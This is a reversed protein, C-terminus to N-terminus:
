EPPLPVSNEVSGSRPKLLRKVGRPASWVVDMGAHLTTRFTPQVVRLAVLPRAETAFQLKYRQTGALYDYETVGREALYATLLLHAATGPSRVPSAKDLRSGSVYYDFKQRTLFGFIVALPRKGQALRALLAEETPVLRRALARHFELFRPASFCGPKGAAEWRQQHIQVLQDFFWDTSAPNVALEFQLGAATVERLLRRAQARSNASLRNLYAEFGGSLDAVHCPGENVVTVTRKGDAFRRGWDLLPSGASLSRLDLEDWATDRSDQVVTEIRDLCERAEGPLHLLDLYAACTEEFEAEGSSLFGLRRLGLFKGGKCCVYLPLAGILRSGRWVTYVRLGRGSFAYVSGYQRWWERLWEWRLPPSATPSAAFLEKWAAELGDWARADAIVRVAADTPRQRLSAANTDAGM